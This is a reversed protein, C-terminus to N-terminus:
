ASRLAALTGRAALAALGPLLMNPVVYLIYAFLPADPGARIQFGVNAAASLVEIPVYLWDSPRLLLLGVLFIVFALPFTVVALFYVPFAISKGRKRARQSGSCCAPPV